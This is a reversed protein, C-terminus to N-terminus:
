GETKEGKNKKKKKPNFVFNVGLRANLYKANELNIASNINDSAAYIQFAGAKLALGFGLNAPAGKMVSYTFVSSLASGPSLGLALTNEPILKGNLIYNKSIFGFNLWEKYDYDATVNMTGMLGTTYSTGESKVKMADGITGFVDGLYDENSGEVNDYHASVSSSLQQVNNKWKIFGIDNFALGVTLKDIVRWTAGFDFAWGKNGNLLMDKVGVGDKLSLDQITGDPNATLNLPLATNINIDSEVEIGRNVDNAITMAMQETKINIGGLLYKFRAGVTIKDSVPHSAGVAIETYNLVNLFLDIDSNLNSASGSEELGYRLDLLSKSYNFKAKMRHNLDFTIFTKRVSFGFGVLQLSAEAALLNNDQLKGAVKDLNLTDGAMAESYSFGTGSGSIKISGLVPMSLYWRGVPRFAPNIQTTQPVGKLFTLTNDQAKVSITVFALLLAINIKKM